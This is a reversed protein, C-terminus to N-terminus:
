YVLFIEDVSLFVHHFNEDTHVLFMEDQTNFVGLNEVCSFPLNETNGQFILYGRKEIVHLYIPSLM